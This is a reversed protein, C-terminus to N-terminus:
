KKVRKRTEKAPVFEINQIAEMFMKNGTEAEDDDYPRETPQMFEPWESVRASIRMMESTVALMKPQFFRYEWQSSIWFMLEDETIPTGDKALFLKEHAHSMAITQMKQIFIIEKREEAIQEPSLMKLEFKKRAMKKGKETTM